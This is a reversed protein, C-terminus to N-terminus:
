LTYMGGHLSLIKGSIVSGNMLEIEEVQGARGIGTWVSMNHPTKM